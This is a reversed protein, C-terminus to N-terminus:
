FSPGEEPGPVAFANVVMGVTGYHGTLAVVEVLQQQGLEAVARGFLEESLGRERLLTRPLEVLLRERPMLGDVAGKARVVEIAEARTGAQRAAVEHRAWPYRAEMERAAALVVLERDAASLAGDFRFYDEVAALRQALAPVHMLMSYPGRVGPRVKAIGDWIAQDDPALSDRTVPPLRTM